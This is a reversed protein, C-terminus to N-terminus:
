PTANYTIADGDTSGAVYLWSLDVNEFVYSDGQSLPFGKPAGSLVSTGQYGIRLIGKNDSEAVVDVRAFRKSGYSVQEAKTVDQNTSPTIEKRDTVAHEPM